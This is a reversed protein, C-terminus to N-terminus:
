IEPNGMKRQFAQLIDKVIPQPVLNSIDGGLFAIEKVLSSALYAYEESPILFLTEVEPCLRRNMWAMKFEYEFDSVARLGRIIASAGHERVFDVLLGTLKEVTVSPLHQVAKRVMEIREDIPILPKKQLPDAVAVIVKPFLRSAREVIDLHGLTMPDFSGPYVAITLSKPRAM